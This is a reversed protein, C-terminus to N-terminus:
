REKSLALGQQVHLRECDLKWICAPAVIILLISINKLSNNSTYYGKTM